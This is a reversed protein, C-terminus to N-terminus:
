NVIIVQNVQKVIKRLLCLIIKAHNVFMEQVRKVIKFLANLALITLYIHVVKALLALYIISAHNVIRSAVIATEKIKFSL